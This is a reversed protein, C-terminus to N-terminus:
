RVSQLLFSGQRCTNQSRRVEAAGCAVPVGAKSFCAHIESLFRGGAACFPLVGNDPL